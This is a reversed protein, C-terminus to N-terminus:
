EGKIATMLSKIKNNLFTVSAHYNAANKAFETTEVDKDVNNGDLSSHNDTRYKLITSFDANTNIHGPSTTDVKQASGALSAQLYDNFDLDQAKYNPTNANAINNAIVSARQEQAEISKAYIGFYSDINMAM